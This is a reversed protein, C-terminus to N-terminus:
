FTKNFDRKRFDYRCYYMKSRALGVIVNIKKTESSIRVTRKQIQYLFVLSMGLISTAIMVELLTFGRVFKM